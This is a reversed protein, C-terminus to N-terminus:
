HSLGLRGIGGCGLPMVDTEAILNALRQRDRQLAWFHSLWWHSLLVPQAQQLHTYGPMIIDLHADAQDCLTQQLHKIDEDIRLLAKKVWLRFDTAVQDNRSRGTHLKGGLPGIMETLQREVATHIDEDAESFVFTGQRVEKLLAELGSKITQSEEETLVGAQLLAGTWAISGQIDVEALRSDFALSNNLKAALADTDGTLRGQWLKM